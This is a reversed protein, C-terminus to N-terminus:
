WRPILGGAVGGILQMGADALYMKSRPRALALLFRLPNHFYAYALMINVQKKCPQKHESAVVYNGDLRHPRIIAKIEKMM